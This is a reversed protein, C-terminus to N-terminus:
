SGRLFHTSGEAAGSYHPGPPPNELACPKKLRESLKLPCKQPCTFGPWGRAHGPSGLFVEIRDSRFGGFGRVPTKRQKRGGSLVESGPPAPSSQQAQAGREAGHTTGMPTCAGKPSAQRHGAAADLAERAEPGQAKRAGPLQLLEAVAWSQM